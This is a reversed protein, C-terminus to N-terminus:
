CPNCESVKYLELLFESPPVFNEEPADLLAHASMMGGILAYKYHLDHSWFGMYQKDDIPKKTPELAHIRSAYGGYPLQIANEGILEKDASVTAGYLEVFSDGFTHRYIGSSVLQVM